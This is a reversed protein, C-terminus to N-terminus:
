PNMGALYVPDGTTNDVISAYAFFTAGPATARVVIMAQDVDGDFFRRLVRNLQRHEFPRLSVTFRDPQAGAPISSMLRLEVPDAGVNVLGLNTRFGHAPSASEALPWFKVRDLFTAAETGRVPPIAQGYSGQGSETYTRSTVSIWGNLVTIRLAGTGEVGFVDGVLDLYRRCIGPGLTFTRSVPDPNAIGSRLFALEFAAGALGPNCVELDTRWRTGNRGAVHAAALLYQTLNTAEVDGFFAADGSLNDVVSAYATFRAPDSTTVRAFADAVPGAGLGALAANLQVAGFPPVEVPLSGLVYGEASSFEVECTFAEGDLSVIGVNTRFIENETLQQLVAERRQRFEVGADVGPIGQGYTGGDAATSTRSGVWVPNGGSAVFIAGTANAEGFLSAVVDDVTLSRRGSGDVPLDLRHGPQLLNTRDRPMFYLLVEPSGDGYHASISLDTRWETSAKGPGHAAAPVVAAWEQPTAISQVEVWRGTATTGFENAVELTVWFTGPADFTHTPDEEDSMFQGDV